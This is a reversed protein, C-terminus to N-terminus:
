PTVITQCGGAVCRASEAECRRLAEEQTLIEDDGTASYRKGLLNRATCLYKPLADASAIGHTTSTGAAAPFSLLVLALLGLRTKM